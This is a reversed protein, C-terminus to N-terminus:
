VVDFAQTGFELGRAMMGQAPYNEWTQLWPYESTKFLYGLVLNADYRTTGSHWLLM